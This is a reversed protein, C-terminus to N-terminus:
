LIIASSGIAIDVVNLVVQLSSDVISGVSLGIVAVTGETASFGATVDGELEGIMKVVLKVVTDRVFGDIVRIVEDISAILSGVVAGDFKNLLAGIVEVWDIVEFVSPSLILGVYKTIIM